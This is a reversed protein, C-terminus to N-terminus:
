GIGIGLGHLIMEIATVVLVPLFIFRLLRNSLHPLLRTGILAGLLVGLAVPAAIFPPIDGRSFYIGASAAATVGIMFNSTATSVKLPLRMLTDMALVKFTGSGIGLLGSILGAVYMMVLGFPTRTAQYSVQRGLHHDPYSSALGLWNALKDNKVGQPLEEGLKFVLPASSILLVIGFIVGLVGPALLGALFAGSMAGTTTALELFMGVRMNTLHDRVYAAAAGSSTAIVSIISAGIAFTIPLHFLITLMPVVLVGGGLGVLSGLVGAALSGVFVLLVMALSFQITLHQGSAVSTSATHVDGLFFISYLLFVLVLLTIVIYKRDRELAFAVLSTAVRAVPTAILFFLGLAIIAQPQLVAIGRMVQGITHPFALVREAVLVDPRLFLLLLGILVITASLLVGGQLVWGIWDTM